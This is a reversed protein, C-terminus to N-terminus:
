PRETMTLGIESLWQYDEMHLKLDEIPVEPYLVHNYTIYIKQKEIVKYNVTRTRFNESTKKLYNVVMYDTGAPIHHDNDDSIHQETHRKELVKCLFFPENVTESSYIAIIKGVDITSSFETHSFVENEEMDSQADDEFNDDDFFEDVDSDDSEELNSESSDGLMYVRGKPGNTQDDFSIFNGDCCFDCSCIKEKIQIEGSPFYSIM